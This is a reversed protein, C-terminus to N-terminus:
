DSIFLSHLLSFLIGAVLVFAAAYVSLSREGREVIAAFSTAGAAILLALGSFAVVLAAVTDGPVITVLAVAVGVTATVLDVAWKGLRTV